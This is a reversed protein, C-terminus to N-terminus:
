YRRHRPAGYDDVRRHYRQGAKAGLIAASRTSLAIAFLTILAGATLAPGDMPIREPRLEDLLGFERAVFASAGALVAAAFVACLWVAQGQRGGDYRTMRGAAYGGGLYAALAVLVILAAGGGAM